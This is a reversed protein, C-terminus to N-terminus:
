LLTYWHSISLLITIAMSKFLIIYHLLLPLWVHWYTDSDGILHPDASLLNVCNNKKENKLENNFVTNYNISDEIKIM